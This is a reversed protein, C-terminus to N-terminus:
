DIKKYKKVKKVYRIEIERIAGPISGSNSPHVPIRDVWWNSGDRYLTFYMKRGDEFEVEEIAEIRKSWWKSDHV